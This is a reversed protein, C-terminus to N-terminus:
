YLDQCTQHPFHYSHFRKLISQVNIYLLIKHLYKSVILLLTDIIDTMVLLQYNVQKTMDNLM